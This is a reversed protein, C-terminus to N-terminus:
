AGQKRGGTFEREHEQRDRKAQAQQFRGLRLQHRRQGGDRHEEARNGGGQQLLHQLPREDRLRLDAEHRPLTDFQRVPNQHNAEPAEALDDILDQQVCPM